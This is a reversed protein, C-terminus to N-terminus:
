GSDPLKTFFVLFLCIKFLIDRLCPLVHGSAAKRLLFEMWRECPSKKKVLKLIELSKLGDTGDRVCGWLGNMRNWITNEGGEVSVRVSGYLTRCGQKVRVVGRGLSFM